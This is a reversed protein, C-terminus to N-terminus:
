TSNRELLQPIPNPINLRALEAQPDLRDDPACIRFVELVEDAILRNQYLHMAATYRVRGSGPEGVPMALFELQQATKEMM